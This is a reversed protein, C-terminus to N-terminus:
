GVGTFIKMSCIHLDAHIPILILQQSMLRQGLHLQFDSVHKSPYSLQLSVTSDLDVLAIHALFELEM